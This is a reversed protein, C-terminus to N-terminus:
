SLITIDEETVLIKENFQQNIVFNIMTRSNIAASKVRTGIVNPFDLKIDNCVQTLDISSGMSQAIIAEYVASKYQSQTIQNNDPRELELQISIKLTSYLPAFVTIANGLIRKNRLGMRAIEIIIDSMDPRRTEIYVNVGGIYEKISLNVVESIDMMTNITHENFLGLSEAKEQLIYQYTLDDAIDGGGSISFMNNASLSYTSLASPIIGEIENLNINVETLQGPLVYIAGAEKSMTRCFVKSRNSKMYVPDITEFEISNDETSIATGSPINFGTSNVTIDSAIKDEPNIYIYTNALSLDSAYSLMTRPENMFKGWRDLYSGESRGIDINDAISYLTDFGISIASIVSDTMQGLFPSSSIDIYGNETLIKNVSSNVIGRRDYPIVAM